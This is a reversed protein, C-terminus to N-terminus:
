WLPNPTTPVSTGIRIVNPSTSQIGWGGDGWSVASDAGTWAFGDFLDLARSFTVTPFKAVRCHYEEETAIQPNTGETAGFDYEYIPTGAIIVRWMTGGVNQIAFETFAGTTLTPWPGIFTKPVAACGFAGNTFCTQFPTGGSVYGTQLFYENGALDHLYLSVWVGKNVGGGLNVIQINSRVGLTSVPHPVGAGVFRYRCDDSAARPAALAAGTAFVTAAIFAAIRKMM